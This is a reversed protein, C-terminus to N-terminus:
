KKMSLTRAIIAVAEARTTNSQPQLSGDSYGNLLGHYTSAAIASRAWDSVDQGDKYYTGEKTMDLKAASVMIVAMQERTIYDDPGFAADSYGSILGQAEATAIAARAWHSGTDAFVKGNQGNLNFAKVVLTVFEARTIKHDPKFTGDPYGAIVGAKILDQIVKEAWHGHIDTPEASHTSPQADEPIKVAIVAFTAFHDVLGTVFGNSKDLLQSDLPIWKQTAENFWYIGIQQHDADAKNNDFPLKITVPKSFADDPEKTIKFMDGVLKFAEDLPLSSMVKDVTVRIDNKIAGAPVVITAGNMTVTGGDNAPIFGTIAAAASSGGGSSSNRYIISPATYTVFETLHKTWIVLDNVVQLVADGGASIENDAASQSDGSITKTIPIFTGKSVYGALKGVQGPFVIRVAKDFTLSVDPSGIEIVANVTGNISVSSNSRVQPLQIIGDWSSPATVQTNAPISVIVNGLSTSANVVVSPLVAQALTGNIVPSLQIAANTVEKPVTISVPDMGTLRLVPSDVSPSLGIASDVKVKASASLGGYTATIVTSGQSVGTMIGHNTVTAIQPDNSTYSAFNTVDLVRRDSYEASVALDRSKGILLSYSDTKLSIGNLVPSNSGNDSARNVIVTYTKTAGDQATVIIAIPNSGVVLRISGSPQGSVAPSGNITMTSRSDYVSATVTLSSVSNAVNTIYSTTGSAFDLTGSSLSLSSLNANSSQENAAERNVIITYTKVSGNQAAVVITIPNSGVALQITSSPQGSAASSGNITMTSLSDAVSATVTLSSVSNAVNTIYSTINSAFNLTGNSLSLSSLDANSSKQIPLESYGSSGYKALTTALSVDEKGAVAKVILDGVVGTNSNYSRVRVEIENNIPKGDGGSTIPVNKFVYVNKQVREPVIFSSASAGGVQKGNVYLEIVGNALPQKIAEGDHDQYDINSYVRIDYTKEAGGTDLTNWRNGTNIHVFDEVKNWQAKYYFFPDKKTERDYTVMGKDNRGLMEKTGGENRWDIGFDFMNWIYTGMVWPFDGLLKYCMEHWRSMYEIPHNKASATTGDDRKISANSFSLQSYTSAMKSEQLEENQANLFFVNPDGGVGYESISIISDPYKTQLATLGSTSNGMNAVGASYTGYYYHAGILDVIGRKTGDANKFIKEDIGAFTFNDTLSVIRSPDKDISKIVGDMQHMFVMYETIKGDDTWQQGYGGQTDGNAAVENSLAWTYISPHNYNQLVLEKIQELANLQGPSQIYNNEDVFTTFKPMGNTSANEAWVVYGFEDAQSYFYQPYPYHAARITNMSIENILAFSTDWQKKGQANGYGLFDGHMAAGYLPYEEGNLLFSTGKGSDGLAKVAEGITRYEFKRFGVRDTFQDLVNGEMDTVSMVIRYLYAKSKGNARGNWLKAKDIRITSMNFENFGTKGSVQKASSAVQVGDKDYVRASLNVNRSDALVVNATINLTADGKKGTTLDNSINSVSQNFYVGNSAYAHESELAFHTESTNIIHVDKHIGGWINYDPVSGSGIPIYQSVDGSGSNDVTVKLGVSTKGKVYDTIDFTFATYGGIHEGVLVNDIYLKAVKNAAEFKIFVRGEQFDRVDLTKTYTCMGRYYKGDGDDTDVVNWTHPLNVTGNQKTDAGHTFSWNDNILVDSRKVSAAAAAKAVGSGSYPALFAPAMVFLMSIVCIASIIKKFNKRM